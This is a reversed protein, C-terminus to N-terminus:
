SDPSEEDGAMQRVLQLLRKRVRANGIRRYAQVLQLINNDDARSPDPATPAGGTDAWFSQPLLGYIETIALLRHLPMADQGIEYKRVQQGSVGITRGFEQQSLGRQLRAEKIRRGVELALESARRRSERSATDV